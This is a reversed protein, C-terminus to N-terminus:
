GARVVRINIQPTGLAGLLRLWLPLYMEAGRATTIDGLDIVDAEGWGFSHLLTTVAQKASADNGSVFINHGGAILEPNVMIAATVTNLTKVVLADPFARQVQEGLSDTNATLLTPPFGASHDLANSVDILVKGTLNGAGAAELAELTGAGSTANIVVEGATAAEAMTGPHARDGAGAAWAVVKENTASRSGMTVDHGLEILKSAITQGVVGTGLVGIRM